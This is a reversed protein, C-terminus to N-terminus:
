HAWGHLCTRTRTHTCTDKNEVLVFASQVFGSRMVGFGQHAAATICWAYCVSPSSYNGEWKAMETGEGETKMEKALWFRLWICRCSHVDAGFCCNGHRIQDHWIVKKGRWTEISIRHINYKTWMQTIDYWKQLKLVFHCCLWLKNEVLSKWTVRSSLTMTRMTKKETNKANFLHRCKNSHPLIILLTFCAGCSPENILCVSALLSPQCLSVWLRTSSLNSTDLELCVWLLVDAFSCM